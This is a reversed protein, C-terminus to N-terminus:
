LCWKAKMLWAGLGIIKLNNQQPIVVGNLLNLTPINPIKFSLRTGKENEISGTSSGDNTVIRINSGHFYANPDYKSKAVDKQIGKSYGKIAKEAWVIPAQGEEGPAKQRGYIAVTAVSAVVATPLALVSSRRVSASSWM